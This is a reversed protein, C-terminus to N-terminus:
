HFEEYYDQCLHYLKAYMEDIVPDFYEFLDEYTDECHKEIFEKISIDMDFDYCKRLTYSIDVVLKDDSEDSNSRIYKSYLKHAIKLCEKMTEIKKEGFRDNINLPYVIDSKPIIESDCIVSLVCREYYNDNQKSEYETSGNEMITGLTYRDRNLSIDFLGDLLYKFQILEMFCLITNLEFKQCLYQIFREMEHADCLIQKLKIQKGMEMNSEDLENRVLNYDKIKGFDDQDYIAHTASRTTLLCLVVVTFAYTILHLFRQIGQNNDKYEEFDHHDHIFVNFIIQVIIVEIIVAFVFIKLEYKLSSLIPNNTGIHTKSTNPIKFYVTSGIIIPILGLLANFKETSYGTKIYLVFYFSAFCHSGCFIVYIVIALRVMSRKNGLKNRNKFWFNKEVSKANLYLKWQNNMLSNLINLDYYILWYRTLAMLVLAQVIISCSFHCIAILFTYLSPHLKDIPLILCIVIQPYAVLTFLIGFINVFKVIQLYGNQQQKRQPSNANFKAITYLQIPAYIIIDIAILIIALLWDQNM